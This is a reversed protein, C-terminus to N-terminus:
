NFREMLDEYTEADDVILVEGFEAGHSKAEESFLNLGEWQNKIEEISEGEFYADATFKIRVEM